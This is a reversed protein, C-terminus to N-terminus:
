GVCSPCYGNKVLTIPAHGYARQIPALPCFTGCWGSRGKFIIGGIFAGILVSILLYSLMDSDHNLSVSRLSVVVFFVLSAIYYSLNKMKVPLTYNLSFGFIHPLQNLFAMPCIQRWLGPIVVFTLPLLPIFLAWVLTLGLVPNKALLLILLITILLTILRLIVWVFQPIGTPIETYNPFRKAAGEGMTDGLCIAESPLPGVAINIM